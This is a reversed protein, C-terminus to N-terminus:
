SIEGGVSSIGGQQNDFTGISTSFRGQNVLERVVQSDWHRRLHDARVSLGQHCELRPGLVIEALAELLHNEVSVPQDGLGDVGRGHSSSGLRLVTVEAPHVLHGGQQVPEAGDDDVAERCRMNDQSVDRILARVILDDQRHDLLDVSAIYASCSEVAGPASDGADVVVLGSPIVVEDAPHSTLELFPERM